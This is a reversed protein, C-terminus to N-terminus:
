TRYHMLCTPSKRNSGKIETAVQDITVQDDVNDKVFFTRTSLTVQLSDSTQASKALCTENEKELVGDLKLAQISTYVIQLYILYASILDCFRIM